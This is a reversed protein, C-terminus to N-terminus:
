LGDNRKYDGQVHLQNKILPVQLCFTVVEISAKLLSPM